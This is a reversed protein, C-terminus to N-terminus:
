STLLDEQRSRNDGQGHRQEVEEACAGPRLWPHYAGGRVRRHRRLVRQLQQRLAVAAEHVARRKAGACLVLQPPLQDVLALGGVSGDDATRVATGWQLSQKISHGAVDKHQAIGSVRACM